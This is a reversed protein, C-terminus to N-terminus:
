TSQAPTLASVGQLECNGNPSIHMTASGSRGDGLSVAVTADVPLEGSPGAPVVCFAVWEAAVDNFYVVVDIEAAILRDGARIAAKHREMRFTAKPLRRWAAVGVVAAAVTLVVLGTRGQASFYPDRCLVLSMVFGVGFFIVVSWALWPRVAQPPPLMMVTDGSMAVQGRHLLNKALLLLLSGAFFGIAAKWSRNDQWALWALALQVTAATAVALAVMNTKAATTM